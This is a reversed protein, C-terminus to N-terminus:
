VTAGIALKRRGFHCGVLVGLIIGFASAALPGYAVAAGLIMGLVETRGDSNSAIGVHLLCYAIIALLLANTVLFGISGWLWARWAYPRLGRLSAFIFSSATGIVGLAFFLAFGTLAFAYPMRSSSTVSLYRRVILNVSAPM